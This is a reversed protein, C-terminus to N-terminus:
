AREDEPPAGARDEEGHHDADELAADLEGAPYPEAVHVAGAPELAEDSDRDDAVDPAGDQAQDPPQELRRVRRELERAHRRTDIALDIAQMNPPAPAAAEVLGAAKIASIAQAVRGGIVTVLTVTATTILPIADTTSGDLAVAVAGAYQGVAAVIGVITSLGVEVRPAVRAITRFTGAVGAFDQPSSM